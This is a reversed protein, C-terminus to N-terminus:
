ELQRTVRVKRTEKLQYIGVTVGHEISDATEAASLWTENKENPDTERNVYIMKPLGKKAM